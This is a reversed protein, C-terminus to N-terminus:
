RIAPVSFAQPAAGRQQCEWMTRYASELHQRYLDTDFVPLTAKRDALEARTKAISGPSNAYEIARLAYNELNSTVLESLGLASLLSGAVRSAFSNGLCTLVPLGAWLADRATAHAGYPLTDLFLDAQRYRALHDAMAKARGAFVLREPAVGRAVAERALNARMCADGDRLWLVSDPADRLIRMWTDFMAPNIKYTNNFACFVFSADPLGLDGRGLTGDAVAQRDDNPLFSHPLRVVRESFFSEAGGTVADALLYDVYSAGSTGAFGLFSVQVPAPRLALIGLRGDRTHGTLDVAIDVEGARLRTAVERDSQETVDEFHEFAARLRSRMTGGDGAGRLALGFTQFRAKDHHELVGAILHAVPHERFDASLYAVKIREHRYREGCWLPKAVPYHDEVFIRACALQAAPSDTISLLAHPSSARAGAEVRAIIKADLERRATWDCMSARGTVLNGLGYDFSPDLAVLKAYAEASEVRRNLARLAAARVNLAELRDPRQALARDCSEIAQEFQRTDLWVNAMNIWADAFRPRIQLAREFSAIADGGKHLLRLACGRNNHLEASPALSLARDFAALAEEVQKLGLLAIGRNGWPAASEVSIQMARDCSLLADAHRRLKILANSRGLHADFLGPALAIARDYSSLAEPPRELACLAHARNLHAEALRADCQLARDCHALAELLRGLGLSAVALNSHVSASAPNIAAAAALWTTAGAHDGRRLAVHGLLNLANFDGPEIALAQRFLAESRSLQGRHLLELGQRVYQAPASGSSSEGAM